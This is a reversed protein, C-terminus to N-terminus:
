PTGERAIRGRNLALRLVGEVFVPHMDFSQAISAISNGDLFMRLMNAVPDYPASVVAPIPQADESM